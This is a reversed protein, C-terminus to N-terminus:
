NKFSVVVLSELLHSDSQASSDLLLTDSVSEVFPPSCTSELGCTSVRKELELKLM